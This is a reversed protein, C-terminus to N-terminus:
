SRVLLDKTEAEFKMIMLNLVSAETSRLPNLADQFVSGWVQPPVKLVM